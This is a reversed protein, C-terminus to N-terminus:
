KLGPCVAFVREKYMELPDAIGRMPATKRREHWWVRFPLCPLGEAADPETAAGDYEQPSTTILSSLAACTWIVGTKEVEVKCGIYGALRSWITFPAKHQYFVQNTPKAKPQDKM